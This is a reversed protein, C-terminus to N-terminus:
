IEREAERSAESAAQCEDRLIVQQEKVFTKLEEGEYGLEKGQKTLRGLTDM